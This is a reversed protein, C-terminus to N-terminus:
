KSDLITKNLAERQSAERVAKWLEDVILCSPKASKKLKKMVVDSDEFDKLSWKVTISM